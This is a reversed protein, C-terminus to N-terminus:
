KLNALAHELYRRAINEGTAKEMGEFGPSHNAELIYKKGDGTILVDVGAHNLGIAKAAKKALTKIEDDIEFPKVDGGLSFNARFDGEQPIREMALVFDGIVMVRLDHKYPIFEQILRLKASAGAAKMEEVYQALQEKTEIKDIGKGKGTYIPKIIVPYGLSEAHDLFSEHRSTHFTRPLPIRQLAMKGYDNIKNISYGVESLHNDFFKVGKQSFHNLLQTVPKVGVLVSRAIIADPDLAEIEPSTLGEDTFKLNLDKTNVIHFEHGLKAAEEALRTNEACDYFSTLFVIRM